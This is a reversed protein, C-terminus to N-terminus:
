NHNAVSIIKEAIITFVAKYVNCFFCAYCCLTVPSIRCGPPVVVKIAPRIQIDPVVELARIEEIPVFIETPEEEVEKIGLVNKLWTGFDFAYASAACTGVLCVLILGIILFKTKKM